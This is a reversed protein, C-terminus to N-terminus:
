DVPSFIGEGFVQLNLLLSLVTPFPVKFCWPAHSVLCCGSHALLAGAVYGSCAYGPWLTDLIVLGCRYSELDSIVPGFVTERVAITRPPRGKVGIRERRTSYPTWSGNFLYASGNRNEQM